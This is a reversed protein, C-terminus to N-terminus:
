ARELALAILRTLEGAPYPKQLFHYGREAILPWRSREDTYGSTLIIAARSGAAHWREVLDIGNGDPLVVDCLVAEFKGAAMRWQEEAEAVTHASTVTCGRGRLIRCALNRVGEEDEVLLVHLGSLLQPTNSDVNAKASPEASVAPLYLKFISGQGLQSYVHIWGGHQKIIGYAMALGLGAGRGPEKTTFFPEFLHSVVEASMGVGTDALACCVFPGCRLDPHMLVDEEHFTINRTSITLRGGQPMAERANATLNLIIQRLQGQDVKVPWLDPALATELIVTTGVTHLLLAREDNLLSNIDTIVPLIMQKRSFALLRNTLDRARQAAAQIERVDRFHRDSEQLDGALLEAFGLIVQLLNNFDHAVGGALRGISEMKQAQQLEAELSRQETVDMLLSQAQRISTPDDGAVRLHEEVWRVDGGRTLLRYSLTFEPLQGELHRRLEQQVRDRDEPHLWPLQIQGVLEEARYGWRRVTESVYELPSDLGSRRLLVVAPSRNIAVELGVSREYAQQLKENLQKLATIDHGIGITGIVREERDRLAVRTLSLWIDRGDRTRAREEKDLLPEGTAMVKQEDELYGAAAEASFLDADTKGRLEEPAAAGVLRAASINALLFRHQRDKVFIIDPLANILTLLLQRQEKLETEAQRRVTLDRIIEVEAPTGHFLIRRVNIEVPMRSGDKCQHIAEFVAQGERAVIQMIAFLRPLEEPVFLDPTKIQPWEAQSYGYREDAISNAILIQGHLNKVFVVDGVHDFLQRFEIAWEGERREAQLWASLALLGLLLGTGVIAALMIWCTLRNVNKLTALVEKRDQKVVLFWVSKPIPQLAALIREGRYDVGDTLEHKEVLAQTCSTSDNTLPLRFKLASDPEFRLENLVLMDNGERRLLLIEGSSSPVPWSQLLKFLYQYPNIRILLNFPRTNAGSISETAFPVVLMMRAPQANTTLYLDSLQPQGSQSVETMAQRVAPLSAGLNPHVSLVEEGVSTVIAADGHGYKGEMKQMWLLVEDRIITNGPNQVLKELWQAVAPNIVLTNAINVRVERWRAIQEAKFGGIHKLEDLSAKLASEEAHRMFWYGSALILSSLLLFLGPYLWWFRIHKKLSM